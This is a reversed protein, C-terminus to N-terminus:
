NKGEDEPVIGLNKLRENVSPHSSLASRKKNNIPELKVLQHFASEIDEKDVYKAGYADCKLEIHRKYKFAGALGSLYIIVFIVVFATIAIANNPLSFIDLLISVILPILAIASLSALQMKLPDNDKIHSYEHMIFFRLEKDSLQSLIRNDIIIVSKRKKLAFLNAKYPVDASLIDIEEGKLEPVTRQILESSVKKKNSFIIDIHPKVFAYVFLGIAFLFIYKITMDSIYSLHVIDFKVLIAIILLILSVVRM